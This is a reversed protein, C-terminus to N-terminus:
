HMTRCYEYARDGRRLLELLFPSFYWLSPVQYNVWLRSDLRLTDLSDLSALDNSLRDVVPTLSTGLRVLIQTCSCELYVGTCANSGKSKGDLTARNHMQHEIEQGMSSFPVPWAIGDGVEVRWDYGGESDHLWELQGRRRFATVM